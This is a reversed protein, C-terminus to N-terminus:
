ELPDHENMGIHEYTDPNGSKQPVYLTGFRSLYVLHGYIGFPRLTFWIAM